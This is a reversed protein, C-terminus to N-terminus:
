HLSQHQDRAQVHRDTLLATKPTLVSASRPKRVDTIHSGTYERVIINVIRSDAPILLSELSIQVSSM